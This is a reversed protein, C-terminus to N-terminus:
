CDYLNGTSCGSSRRDLGSAVAAQDDVAVDLAPTMHKGETCVDLCVLGTVRSDLICNRITTHVTTHYYCLMYTIDHVTIYDLTIYHISVCVYAYIYVPACMCVCMCVYMCVEVDVYTNCNSTAEPVSSKLVEHRHIYEHRLTEPKPKPPKTGLNWPKPNVAVTESQVKLPKSQM